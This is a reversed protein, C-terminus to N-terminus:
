SGLHYRSRFTGLKSLWPKSIGTTCQPTHHAKTEGAEAWQGQAASSIVKIKLTDTHLSHLHSCKPNDRQYCLRQVLFFYSGWLWCYELEIKIDHCLFGAQDLNQPHPQLVQAECWWHVSTRAHSLTQLPKSINSTDRASLSDPSGTQQHLKPPLRQEGYAVQAFQLSQTLKM